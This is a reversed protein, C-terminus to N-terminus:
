KLQIKQIMDSLIIQADKYRYYNIHKQLKEFDENLAEPISKNVLVNMAKMIEAPKSKKIQTMLENLNEILKSVDVLTESTQKSIELDEEHNTKISSISNKVITFEKELEEFLPYLDPTPLEAAARELKKAHNYLAHAAMNGSAGAMTHAYLKIENADSKKISNRLNDLVTEQDKIISHLMKQFVEWTVGLRKLGDAVDIGPLESPFVSQESVLTFPKSKLAWGPRKEIPIWKHLARFLELRDIPKSVYDDMGADLCKERDGKMANATMAIIPIHSSNEKNNEMDRIKKTAEIGCMGPMQVDMLIASYNNKQFYEIAQSGNEAIDVVLGAQSLVECAVIQNASNDEALLIKTGEFERTGLILDRKTKVDVTIGFSAMIADFLASQKIPKFLFSSVGAKQSMEIESQGGYASMMIIPIKKIAKNQFIEISVELGNKGPLYYDILLIDFPESSNSKIILSLADEGNIVRKRNIGFNDLMRDLVMFSADNDEIILANLQKIQKPFIWNRKETFAKIGFKCKFSFTSGSGLQSEVNIGDGGMMRVLKQSITLGLGTGGYKRSTSSDAQTFANFLINKTERSIGIGTDSVSFGIFANDEDIKEITIKLYIEGKDTFKFANSILNILIQRLRLSDGVLGDPADLPVDIIFEIRKKSVIERFNDSIEDLLDRLKFPASEIDLKGAEIKSFDLIDNILSLLSRSSARIVNIYERQKNDLPTGLILDGMGIIANMPTRIEHSMNALFESKAKNAAEAEEKAVKLNQEANKLDTIDLLVGVIGKEDKYNLHYPASYLLMYSDSCDKSGAIKLEHGCSSNANFRKIGTKAVIEVQNSPCLHELKKGIIEEKSIGVWKAYVSNCGLFIGNHDQYFIPAPITDMLLQLFDRSASLEHTRECVEAELNDRHRALETDRLQIESLMENFAKVLEGIEDSYNWEARISYDKNQSIKRFKKALTLIPDSIARAILGALILAVFLVLVKIAVIIYFTTKVHDIVGKIDTNMVVKGIIGDKLTIDNTYVSSHKEIPCRNLIDGKRTYEAISKGNKDLVQVFAINQNVILSNLNETIANKDNRELLKTNIMAIYEVMRKNDLDLMKTSQSHFYFVLASSVLILVLINSVAITFKLKFKISHNRFRRLM